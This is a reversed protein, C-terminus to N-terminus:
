PEAEAADRTAEDVEPQPPPPAARAGIAAAIRDLQGAVSADIRGDRTHLICGGRAVAVDPRLTVHEFEACRRALEPVVNALLEHETPSVRLEVDHHHKVMELLARINAQVPETSADVCIKCVRGAIAVALEILGAEAQAVLSHRRREYEALGAALAERLQTLEAQAAQRAAQRAEQRAQELGQRRGEALGQQYGEHKRSEALKDARTEAEALIRSAHARAHELIQRAQREMDAFSFTAATPVSERRIVAGM